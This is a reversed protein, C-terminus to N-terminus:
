VCYGKFYVIMTYSFVCYRVWSSVGACALSISPMKLEGPRYNPKTTSTNIGRKPLVEIHSTNFQRLNNFHSSHHCICCEFSFSFFIVHRNKHLEACHQLSCCLHLVNNCYPLANRIYWCCLVALIIIALNIRLLKTQHCVSPVPGEELFLRTVLWLLVRFM